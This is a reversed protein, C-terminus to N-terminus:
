ENSYDLEELTNIFKVWDCQWNNSLNAYNAIFNNRVKQVMSSMWWDDISENNQNLFTAASKPSYHLIGVKNLDDIFPKAENRIETSKPNWFVITPTNLAISQLYTTQNTDSIAIRCNKLQYDFTKSYDDFKVTPHRQKFINHTGAQDRPYLRVLTNSLIEEDLDSLFKDSWNRYINVYKGIPHSFMRYFYRPYDNRIYLILGKKNSKNSDIKNVIPSPMSFFKNKPTAKWGMTIYKDAVNIEYDELGSFLQIGYGGGHQSNILKSGNNVNEACLINWPDNIFGNSSFLFNSKNINRNNIKITSNYGELISIPVHESIMNLCLNLFDDDKDKFKLLRNKLKNRFFLDPQLKNNEDINQNVFLEFPIVRFNSNLIIKLLLQKPFGTFFTIIKSKKFLVRLLFNKYKYFFTKSNKYNSSERNKSDYCCTVVSNINAEFRTWLSSYIQFNFYDDQINDLYDRTNPAIIYSKPDLVNTFSEPYENLVKEISLNRDYLVLVFTYLWWGWIIEWYRRTNNKEFLSNVSSTLIELLKEYTKNIENRSDHLKKRDNFHYDIVKLKNVELINTSNGNICWDGLLITNNLSIPWAKRFGTTIIHM